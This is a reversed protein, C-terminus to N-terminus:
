GPPDFPLTLQAVPSFSRRHLPCPGHHRLAELHAITGYGKHRSFGYAPFLACAERMLADRHVKAIVSAASISLSLRDGKVIAQHPLPFNKLPLGDILCFDAKLRLASVARAMALWTAQLINIRDIELPDALGAAWIVRPNRTLSAFLAERRAPTLKKSDDLGTLRFNKPLIVAAAVVPGALPGRGAEDIGAVSTWGSKGALREPRLTPRTQKGAM